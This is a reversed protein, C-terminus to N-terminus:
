ETCEICCFEDSLIIRDNSKVALADLGLDLFVLSQSGLGFGLGQLGLVLM